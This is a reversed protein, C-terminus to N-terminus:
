PGWVVGGIAGCMTGGGDSVESGSERGRYSVATRDARDRFRSHVEEDRSGTTILYISKELLDWISRGGKSSM